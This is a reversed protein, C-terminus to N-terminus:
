QKENDRKGIQLFPDAQGTRQLFVAVPQDILSHLQDRVFRVMDNRGIGCACEADVRFNGM